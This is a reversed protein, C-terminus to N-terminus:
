QSAEKDYFCVPPPSTPTPSDGDNIQLWEYCTAGNAKLEDYQEGGFLYALYLWIALVWM